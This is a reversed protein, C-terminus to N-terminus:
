FNFEWTYLKILDEKFKELAKEAIEKSTFYINNSQYNCDWDVELKNYYNDFIIYYKSSKDNWVIAKENHEWAFKDMRRTLNEKFAIYEAYNKNNFYNVNNFMKDDIAYRYDTLAENKGLYNVHYFIEGNKVREYPSKMEKTEEFDMELLEAMSFSKTEAILNGNKVEFTINMEKCYYKEGNAKLDIDIIKM